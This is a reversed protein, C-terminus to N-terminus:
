SSVKTKFYIYTRKEFPSAPEQRAGSLTFLPPYLQEIPTLSGLGASYTFLLTLCGDNSNYLFTPTCGIRITYDLTELM